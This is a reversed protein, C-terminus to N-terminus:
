FVSAASKLIIWKGSRKELTMKQQLRWTNRSGWIRADLLNQNMFEAKNGNVKIEHKVEKASYYKMSEREIEAFWEEKPQVYGTIHTLIFNEDVIKAIAATNREIMLQTLQRAVSLIQTEDANLTDTMNNRNNQACSALSLMAVTVTLLLKM